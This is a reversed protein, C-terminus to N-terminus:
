NYYTVTGESDVEAWTIHVEAEGNSEVYAFDDGFTLTKTGISAAASETHASTNLLKAKITRWSDTADVTLTTGSLAVTLNNGFTLGKAAQSNYTLSTSTASANTGTITLNSFTYTTDKYYVVGGLIPAETYGTTSAVYKGKVAGWTVVDSTANALPIYTVVNSGNATFVESLTKNSDSTGIAITHTNKTPTDITVWTADGKLFKDQDGAAPAVVLGAKGAASASAGTFASYTTDTFTYTKSTSNYSVGSGTLVFTGHEATGSSGYKLFTEKEDGSPIIEWTKSDDNYLVTDGAKVATASGSSTLKVFGDAAVKYTDGNTPNTTPLAASAEATAPTLTGKYKVAQTKAADVADSIYKTLTTSGVTIKDTGGSVNLGTAYLTVGSADVVAKLGENKYTAATGATATTGGLLYYTANADKTSLNQAVLNLDVATGSASKVFHGLTKDFQLIYPTLKYNSISAPTVKTDNTDDATPVAHSVTYQGSTYAVSVGTGAVVLSKDSTASWGGLSVTLKGDTGVSLLNSIEGGEDTISQKFIKGHTIIYGDDTFAIARYSSDSSNNWNAYANKFGTLNTAHILISM